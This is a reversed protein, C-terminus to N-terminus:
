EMYSNKNGETSSAPSRDTGNNAFTNTGDVRGKSVGSIYAGVLNSYFDCNTCVVVAFEVASTGHNFNGNINCDDVVIYSARGRVGIQNGGLSGGSIEVYSTSRAYIGVACISIYTDEIYIDANYSQIGRSDYGNVIVDPGIHLGVCRAEIASDANVDKPFFAMNKFQVGRGRVRFGYEDQTAILVGPLKATGSTVAGAIVPTSWSYVQITVHTGDDVSIIRWGGNIYKKNTPATVALYMGASMGTTTNTTLQVDFLPASSVVSNISSVTYELPTPGTIVLNTAIEPVMTDRYEYEGEEMVITAIAHLEFETDYLVTLAKEITKWPTPASGNGSSDNGGPALYYTTNGSPTAAYTHAHLSDANSGDTLTELETGTATTDNHDAIDHDSGDHIHLATADSGDTLTELETGTATTDSHSAVTHAENHHQDAGIGTLDTHSAYAWIAGSNVTLLMKGDSSLTNPLDYDGVNLGDDTQLQQVSGSEGVVLPKRTEWFIWGTTGGGDTSNKAYIDVGAAANSGSVFVNNATGAMAVNLTWGVDGQMNCQDSPSGWVTLTGGVTLDVNDWHNASSVETLPNVGELITFDSLTEIPQGAPDFNGSVAIFSTAAWSGSFTLLGSPKDIVMNELSKGNFDISTDGTGNFTLTGTGKDWIVNGAGFELVQVDSGFVINPSQTMNVTYGGSPTSIFTLADPFYYDGAAFDISTAGASNHDFTGVGGYTGPAISCNGQFYFFDPDFIGSNEQVSASVMALTGGSIEGGTPIALVCSLILWKGAQVELIGAATLTYAGLNFTWGCNQNLTAGPAIYTDGQSSSVSHTANDLTTNDYINLKNLSVGFKWTLNKSSGRMNLTWLGSVFSNTSDNDFHGWCDVVVSSVASINGASAAFTMDGASNHTFSSGFSFDGDYSNQVDLSAVTIGVDCTMNQTTYNGDFIVSDNITPVTAGNAGGVGGSTVAFNNVTNWTDDTDGVWYLTLAM